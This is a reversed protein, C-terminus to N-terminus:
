QPQPNRGCLFDSVVRNFAQPRDWMPNHGAGEIVAWAANPLRSHLERGIRMPIVTDHEGWVVLTPAQVRGLDARLDGAVIERLALALTRPGSLLADQLLVPLFSVPVYRVARVLGWADHLYTRHFPIAAANVLVLRDVREPFHAALDAAIYGGMSHGVLHAQALGLQDLWAVLGCAAEHLVFRQGRSRGFGILDIGYVRFDQALVAHNHAWWRTSGSLGHLLVVAPGAGAVQYHLRAGGVEAVHQETPPRAAPAALLAFM